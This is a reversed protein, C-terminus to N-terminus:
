LKHAIPAYLQLFCCCVFTRRAFLKAWSVTSLLHSTVFVVAAATVAVVVVVVVVVVFIM